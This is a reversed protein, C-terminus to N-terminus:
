VRLCLDLADGVVGHDRPVTLENNLASYGIHSVHMIDINYITAKNIVYDPLIIM